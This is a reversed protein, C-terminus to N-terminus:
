KEPVLAEVLEPRLKKAAPDYIGFGSCFEWYSWSLGRAEAERAIFATWRARSAMDAKSYAGFEGLLVPRDNRQSWDRAKELDRTVAAQEPQTGDWATGLWEDSGSSWEAGQHTFNFPQYYHFTAIIRRDAEPLRLGGIQDVSNWRVPGIVVYREPNSERVVALAAAALDNWVDHTMADGMPENLLEFVVTEPQDAYREAIQRWLALYRERQGQPDDMIEGYHHMNIIVALDNQAAQEIVWDIREFFAPDITYPAQEAAHASWRIPVRVSQFGLDRIISFYEEQLTVGWQGEKPAELANGLNIGRGLRANMDFANRITGDTSPMTRETPSPTPSASNQPTATPEDATSQAFRTDTTPTPINEPQPVPGACGAVVFLLLALLIFRM